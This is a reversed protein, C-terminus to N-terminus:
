LSIILLPLYDLGAYPEIWRDVYRKVKEAKTRRLMDRQLVCKLIRMAERGEEHNLGKWKIPNQIFRNWWSFHSMPNHKCTTCGEGRKFSWVLSKCPCKKCYYFQM